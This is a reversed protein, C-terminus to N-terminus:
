DGERAMRLRPQYVEEIKGIACTFRGFFKEIPEHNIDDAMVGSKRQGHAVSGESLAVEEFLRDTNGM